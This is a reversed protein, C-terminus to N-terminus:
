VTGGVALAPERDPRPQKMEELKELCDQLLAELEPRLAPTTEPRRLAEQFLPAARAPQRAQRYCSAASVLRIHADLAHRSQDYLAALREEIQAAQAFAKRAKDMEGAALHTRAKLILGFKKGSLADEEQTYTQCEQDKV